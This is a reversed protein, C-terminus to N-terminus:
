SDIKELWGGQFGAKELGARIYTNKRLTKWILGSEWNELQILIPGQDISIYDPNFWGEKNYTLNFSDLFGYTSYLKSGFHQKMTYLAKLSEEPTFPISGGAATPSITGDDVIYGKAAGRANYTRFEISTGNHMRNENAPGDCATLGWINESYGVFGSPNKICYARNALVARRSNEFYDIDKRRMYEDQIGRFDIFMQSYQHGFLPGFGVYDYGYFEDWKYTSTWVKWSDKPIAHEPSGLALILLVMAENYGEWQAKIFGSEPHWGMSMTEKGNMAWDWQVRRYVSDAISRISHETPNEQDFYSQATLVGAILLGTDVTSLEVQKFRTGNQYNLFHYFFGKYGVNGNKDPGQPAEWLWKLVKLTREAGQERSIFANHIGIIYAPLAFGTAAVSTFARTPYRDDTQWTATDVVDWFYNFTRRKLDKTFTDPVGFRDKTTDNGTKKGSIRADSREVLQEVPRDKSATRQFGFVEIPLFVGILM